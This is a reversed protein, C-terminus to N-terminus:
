RGHHEGLLIKQVGMMEKTQQLLASMKKLKKQFFNFALVSPIAVLLGAATAVLAGSIGAMVSNASGDTAQSMDHFAKMIGLVTGFLGIYPGNSGVTALFALSSEFRGLYRTKLTDFTEEFGFRGQTKLHNSSTELLDKLDSKQIEEPWQGEWKAQLMETLVGDLVKQVKVARTFQLIKLVILVTSIAALVLLLYLVGRDAYHALKFLSENM